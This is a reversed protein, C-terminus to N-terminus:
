LFYFKLIYIYPALLGVQLASVPAVRIWGSASVSVWAMIAVRFCINSAEFDPLRVQENVYWFANPIPMNAPTVPRDITWRRANPNNGIVTGTSFHVLTLHIM